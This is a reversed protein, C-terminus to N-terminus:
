SGLGAARLGGYVGGAIGFVWAYGLASTAAAVGLGAVFGTVAAWAMSVLLFGILAGLPALLLRKGNM